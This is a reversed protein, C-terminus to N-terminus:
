PSLRRRRAVVHRQIFSLPGRQPFEEMATQRDPRVSGNMQDGARPGYFPSHLLAVRFTPFHDFVSRHEGRPAPARSPKVLDCRDAARAIHKEELLALLIWSCTDPCDLPCAGRIQRDGRGPPTPDAIEAATSTDEIM